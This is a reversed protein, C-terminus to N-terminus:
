ELLRTYRGNRLASGEAADPVIERDVFDGSASARHNAPAAAGQIQTKYVSSRRWRFRGSIGCTWVPTSNAGCHSPFGSRLIPIMDMSPEHTITMAPSPGAM